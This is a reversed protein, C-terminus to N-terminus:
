FCSWNLTQKLIPDHLVVLTRGQPGFRIYTGMRLPACHGPSVMVVSQDILSGVRWIEDSQNRLTLCRGSSDREIRGVVHRARRRLPLPSRTQIIDQFLSDGEGWTVLHEQYFFDGTQFDENQYGEFLAGVVMGIHFKNGCFPCEMYQPLHGPGSVPMFQQCNSCTVLEDLAHTLARLWDTPTPRKGPEHLHTILAQDTLRQLPASLMRYSLHGDQYFPHGLNPLRSRDEIPHESFLAQSGCAIRVHRFYDDDSGVFDQLEVMVNRFLLTHLILVALSFRDSGENPATREMVVEPAIFGWMGKVHPQLYNPVVVGEMELMIAAHTDIDILFNRYHLDGHACGKGRLVQVCATVSRAIELFDRWTKSKLTDIAHLPTSCYEILEIYNKPARRMVVGMATRGDVSKVLALPPLMFERQEPTIGALMQRVRLFNEERKSSFHEYVKVAYSGDTSFYVRAEGGTKCNYPDVTLTDPMGAPVYKLEIIM